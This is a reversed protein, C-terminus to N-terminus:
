PHFICCLSYLCYYQLLKIYHCITVIISLLTPLPMCKETPSKLLAWQYLRNNLTPNQYLGHLLLIVPIVDQPLQCTTSLLSLEGAMVSRFNNKGFDFRAHLRWLQVQSTLMQTQCLGKWEKTKTVVCSKYKQSKWSSRRKERGQFHLHLQSRAQNVAKGLWKVWM